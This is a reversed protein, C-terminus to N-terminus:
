QKKQYDAKREILQKAIIEYEKLYTNLQQVPDKSSSKNAIATEITLKSIPKQDLTFEKNLANETIGKIYDLNSDYSHSSLQM